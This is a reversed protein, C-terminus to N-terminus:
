YPLGHVRGAFPRVRGFADCNQPDRQSPLLFDDLYAMIRPGASMFEFSPSSAKRVGELGYRLADIVHNNNDVLKPLVKGTQRDVQWRYSVLEDATRRCRPHVYITYDQLFTIGEEVSDKGKVAPEIRLGRSRLHAIIEPRSSDATIAWKAAGPVGRHRAPNSWKPRDSTDSGAFLAALDDIECGVQYVEHDIFLCKGQSDAVVDSAGPEGAWRGIFCRVLVTPDRSYGWDCGFHLIADDPATFPVIRWDTFVQADSREIYGGEWIHAHKQPDRGRDYEMDRALVEPFWPNDRWQVAQVISGPPPTGRRFLQDVPDTAHRPNFSWWIESGQRRITPILADVSAQSVTAAEEVWCLTVGELSKLAAERGNLGLFIFRSGNKGRIEDGTATFFSGLGFRAITDEILKKSSDKISNQYERVCLILEQRKRAREVLKHAITWSKAGGRGGYLVRHRVLHRDRARPVDLWTAWIPLDIRM